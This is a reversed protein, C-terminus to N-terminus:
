FTTCREMRQIDETTTMPDTVGIKRMKAITRVIPNTTMNICKRGVEWLKRRSSNTERVGKTEFKPANASPKVVM